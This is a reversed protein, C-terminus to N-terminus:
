KDKKSQVSQDFFLNLNGEKKQLSLLQILQPHKEVLEATNALNRLAASQGRAQELQAHSRLKTSLSETYAARLDAPLIVDKIKCDILQIGLEKFAREIVKSFQENVKERGELVEDLTKSTVTDRLCVQVIQTLHEQINEEAINRVLLVPDNVKYTGTINIKVSTRDGLIVEQGPVRLVTQRTDFITAKRGFRRKFPYAGPNLAGIIRGESWEVGLEFEKIVRRFM